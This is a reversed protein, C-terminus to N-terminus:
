EREIRQDPEVASVFQCVLRTSHGVADRSTEGAIHQPPAEGLRFHHSTNSCRVLRCEQRRFRKTTSTRVHRLHVLNAGAAVRLITTARTQPFRLAENREDRPLRRVKSDWYGAIAVTEAAVHPTVATEAPEANALRAIERASGNLGALRAPLLVTQRHAQPGSLM